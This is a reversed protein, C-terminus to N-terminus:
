RAADCDKCYGYIELNHGTVRFDLDALGPIFREMPCNDMSVIKRCRVCVAYHRHRFRNLEYLAPEGAPMFLKVAVGKKVFFELIRYVTSLWVSAGDAEIRACIDAVRLPEDTRELVAFVTERQRTKKIGAPWDSRRSQM